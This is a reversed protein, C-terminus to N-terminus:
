LKTLLIYRGITTSVEFSDTGDTLIDNDKVSFPILAIACHTSNKFLPNQSLETQSILYIAAQITGITSYARKQQKYLDTEVTARQITYKKMDYAIM